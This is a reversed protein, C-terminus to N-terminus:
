RLGYKRLKDRLTTRPMGLRQAAMTLNRGARTYAETIASREIERIGQPGPAPAPRGAGRADFGSAQLAEAIERVGIIESQARMAAYNVVNRLERV